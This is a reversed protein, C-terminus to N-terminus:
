CLAQFGWIAEAHSEPTLGIQWKLFLKGWSYKGSGKNAVELHPTSEMSITTSIHSNLQKLMIKNIVKEALLM